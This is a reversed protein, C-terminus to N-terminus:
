AFDKNKLSKDRIGYLPLVIEESQERPISICLDNASGFEFQFEGLENTATDAVPLKGDQLRVPIGEAARDAGKRKLVQGVLHARDAETQPELRLDIYFEDTEYLFQRATISGRIGATVPQLMSDFVLRAGHSATPTVAAFQSKAIRLVDQPPTLAAEAAAIASVERWTELAESCKRCGRDLHQQMTMRVDPATLNRAFDAWETDSFHKV